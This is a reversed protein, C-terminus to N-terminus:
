VGQCVAEGLGELCSRLSAETREQAVALLRRTSGGIDSVLTLDRHGRSRSSLAYFPGVWPCFSRRFPVWRLRRRKPQHRGPVWDRESTLIHKRHVIVSCNAAGSAIAHGDSRDRADKM